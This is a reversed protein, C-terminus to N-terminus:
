VCHTSSSSADPLCKDVERPFENLVSLPNWGGPNMSCFSFWYFERGFPFWHLHSSPTVGTGVKWDGLIVLHGLISTRTELISLVILIPVTHATHSTRATRANHASHATHARTKKRQRNMFSKVFFSFISCSCSLFLLGRSNVGQSGESERDQYYHDM